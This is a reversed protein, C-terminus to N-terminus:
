DLTISAIFGTGNLYSENIQFVPNNVTVKFAIGSLVHNPKDDHVTQTKLANDFLKFLGKPVMCSMYQYKSDLTKNGHPICLTAYIKDVSDKVKADKDVKRIEGVFATATLVNTM